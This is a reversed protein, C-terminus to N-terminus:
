RAGHLRKRLRIESGRHAFTVESMLSRMLCLGRGHSATTTQYNEPDALALDFGPGPDRVTIIVDSADIMVTCRIQKTPDDRCGHLAANALAEQLAVLIDIQDDEDPCHEMVFQMVQDRCEPVSALVGPFEFERRVVDVPSHAQSALASEEDLLPSSDAAIV